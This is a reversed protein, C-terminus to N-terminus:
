LIRNRPDAERIGLNAARRARRHFLPGPARQQGLPSPRRGADVSTILRIYYLIVWCLRIYCLM